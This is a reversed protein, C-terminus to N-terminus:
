LVVGGGEAVFCGCIIGGVSTVTTRVMGMVSLSWCLSLEIGKGLVMEVEVGENEGVNSVQKVRSLRAGVVAEMRGGGAFV